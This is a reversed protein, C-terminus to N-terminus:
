SRSMEGSVADIKVKYVPVGEVSVVSVVWAGRRKSTHGLRLGKRTSNAFQDRVMQRAESRTIADAFAVTMPAAEATGQTAAISSTSMLVTASIAAVIAFSSVKYISFMFKVGTDIM